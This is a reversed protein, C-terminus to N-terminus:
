KILAKVAPPPEFASPAVVDYEFSTMHIVQDMGMAHQVLTTPQLLLGFKKYEGTSVTVPMPGMPSEEVSDAGILLFSQADIYMTRETDFVTLVKIKYAPRDGFTTKELTTADKVFDAGFMQGDFLADAKASALAKGTKLSPGSVPDVSWAIKGDCGEDQVGIGQIDVIMRMLSPRAQVVEVSGTINQGPMEFTGKARISKIAKIADAGGMAAVFKALLDTGKPLADQAAVPRGALLTAAVLCSLALVSRRFSPRFITTM